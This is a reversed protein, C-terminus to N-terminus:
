IKDGSYLHFHIQNVEQRDGGNTTVSYGVKDLQLKNVVESILLYCDTIYDSDEKNLTSINKIAKKPVVLIHIKYSPKPHWFAIANENEVIRNIPLLKSIKGFAVGVILDGIKSKSLKFLISKM